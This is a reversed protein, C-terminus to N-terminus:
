AGSKIEMLDICYVLRKPSIPIKTEYYPLLIGSSKTGKKKPDNNALGMETMLLRCNISMHGDKEWTIKRAENKRPQTNINDITLVPTFYIINSETPKNFIHLYTWGFFNMNECFNGHIHIKGSDPYLYMYEEIKVSFGKGSFFKFDSLM